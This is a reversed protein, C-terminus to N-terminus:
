RKVVPLGAYYRLDAVYDNHFTESADKRAQMDGLAECALISPMEDYTEIAQPAESAAIETEYPIIIPKEDHAEM